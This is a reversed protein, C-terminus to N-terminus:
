VLLEGEQHNVGIVEFFDIRAEAMQGTIKHQGFNCPDQLCGYTATVRHNSVASILKQDNQRVAGVASRLDYNVPNIPTERIPIIRGRKFVEPHTHADPSRFPM